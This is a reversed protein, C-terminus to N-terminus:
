LIKIKSYVKLYYKIILNNYVSISNYDPITLDYSSM